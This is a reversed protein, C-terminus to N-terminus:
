REEKIADRIAKLHADGTHKEPILSMGETWENWANIIVADSNMALAQRMMEGIRDPTNNVVIPYYGTKAYDWPYTLQRSWRPAVDMGLTISPVFPM